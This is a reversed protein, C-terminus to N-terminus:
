NGLSVWSLLSRWWPDPEETTPVPGPLYESPIKAPAPGPEGVNVFVPPDGPGLGIEEARHQIRDLSTLSAVESELERIEGNVRAQDLQLRQADFGRSTATSNQLVPLMAGLGLVFVAALVWWNVQAPRGPLPVRRAHGLPHNIAAM